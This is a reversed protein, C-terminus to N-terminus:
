MWDDDEDDDDDPLLPNRYPRWRGQGSREQGFGDGADEPQDFDITRSRRIRIRRASPPPAREPFVEDDEPYSLSGPHRFDRFPAGGVDEGDWGDPFQRQGMPPPVADGADIEIEVEEHIRRPRPLGAFSEEGFTESM